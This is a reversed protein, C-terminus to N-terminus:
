STGVKNFRVVLLYIRSSNTAPYDEGEEEDEEKEEDQVQVPNRTMM